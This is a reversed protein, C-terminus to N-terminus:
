EVEDFKYGSKKFQLLLKCVTGSYGMSRQSLGDLVEHIKDKIDPHISINIINRKESM